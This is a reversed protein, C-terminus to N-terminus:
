TPGKADEANLVKDWPNSASDAGIDKTAAGPLAVTITKQELHITVVAAPDVARAARLARMLDSKKFTQDRPLRRAPM